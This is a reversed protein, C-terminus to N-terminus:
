RMRAPEQREIVEGAISLCVALSLVIDPLLAEFGFAQASFRNEFRYLM